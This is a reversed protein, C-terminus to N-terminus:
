GFAFAMQSFPSFSPPGKRQGLIDLLPIREFAMENLIRSLKTLSSKYSTQFKVYWILLYVILAIWIQSFVANKSTGIFSKILLRQKIWKFFLEIQWRQKYILAITEPSFSENNTLFRYTKGSEPDLYTVLRLKDKYNPQLSKQPKHRWPVVIDEDSLVNSEESVNHQGLVSYSMDKKARIVFTIGKQHLGYLWSFDYYGRDVVLISDPNFRLTRAITIDATNGETITAFDPLYGNHDLRLHLKVAGKQTRYKAWPYLSHCLSIM